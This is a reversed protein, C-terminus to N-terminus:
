ARVKPGPQPGPRISMQTPAVAVLKWTEGQREFTMVCKSGTPGDRLCARAPGLMKLSVAIEAASPVGAARGGLRSFGISFTKPAIMADLAREGDPTDLRRLMEPPAGSAARVQAKLSERLKPRDITAEFAARDGSQAAVVFARIGEAAELRPRADCGALAIVLGLPLLLNRALTM